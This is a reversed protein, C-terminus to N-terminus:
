ALAEETSKAAPFSLVRHQAASVLRARVAASPGFLELAGNRLVLLKDLTATVAPNHAIMVVTAGREKLAALAALLAAEGAVDLNANPEDLVVLKPDGYLARALAIRQRQGGSLAAGAEGIQTEYGQPLALIMEHAQALQAARVVRESSVAGDLRAFRAINEGVTGAFLEVDQPLYGVHPGLADRDWAAVDAGDLRVVGAQPKWLGLMLRVLTTKGSASPGIVGLSEGAALSFSVSKLLPTSATPFAFTLREVDIRGTPAPLAVRASGAAGAREAALRRWAGRADVLVRWGGILHEVPQLARGLLITAAIMVGASAQLDIVLWAGIGLTAVQLIQRITRALAALASSIEGHRQQALLLEDHGTQWCAVAASTMGMGVIAEANRALAEAGRLSERSRGLVAAARGRTLRDNLVGLAALMVAGVAACLGLTPHMLGIVTLYIPFWPADFLALIGSGNLLGRLQAIDRLADIDRQRPATAAQELSSRLAEPSLLRDLSRGAFALARARVADVFYALALFLLTIASLMVLTELSSSSFVRDFVQMMYLAPMLLALNLVLSAGAALLVFSRLRKAFLWSM